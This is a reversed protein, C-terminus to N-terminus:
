QVDLKPCYVSIEGMEEVLRGPTHGESLEIRRASSVPKCSFGKRCPPCCLLIALLKGSLAGGAVSCLPNGAAVAFPVLSVGGDWAEPRLLGVFAYLRKMKLQYSLM